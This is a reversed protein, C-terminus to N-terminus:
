HDFTVMAAVTIETAFVEAGNLEQTNPQQVSEVTWGGKEVAVITSEITQDLADTEIQNLSPHTLLVLQFRVLREGFTDGQDIYPSGALVVAAPLLVRGPVHDYTTVTTVKSALDTRLDKLVTM